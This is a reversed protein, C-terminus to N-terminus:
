GAAACTGRARRAARPPCRSSRAHSYGHVEFEEYPSPTDHGTLSAFRLLGPGDCDAIAADLSELRHVARGHRPCHKLQTRIDDHQRAEDVRMNMHALRAVGPPLAERRRRP